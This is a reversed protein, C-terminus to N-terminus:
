LPHAGSKEMIGMDNLHGTFLSMGIEMLTDLSLRHFTGTSDEGTRGQGSEYQRKSQM